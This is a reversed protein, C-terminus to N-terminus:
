VFGVSSLAGDSPAVVSLDIVKKGKRRYLNRMGLCNSIIIDDQQIVVDIARNFLALFHNRSCHAVSAIDMELWTSRERTVRVSDADALALDEFVSRWKISIEM